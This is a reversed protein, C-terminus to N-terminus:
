SLGSLANFLTTKGAGNPGILGIVENKHLDLNVDALAKLGGLHFQYRSLQFCIQIV